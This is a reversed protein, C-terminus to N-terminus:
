GSRGVGGEKGKTGKTGEKPPVFRPSCGVVAEQAPPHPIPTAFLPQLPLKWRNAFCKLLLTQRTGVRQLATLPLCFCHAPSVTVGFLTPPTGGGGGKLTGGTPCWRGWIEFIEALGHGDPRGFIVM